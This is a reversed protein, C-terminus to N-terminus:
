GMHCGHDQWQHGHPSSDFLTDGLGTDFHYLALTHEDPEFRRPPTFDKTYRVTNSIRVEDIIGNFGLVPGKADSPPAAIDFGTPYFRLKGILEENDAVKHSEPNGAFCMYLPILSAAGNVYLTVTHHDFVAALHTTNGKTITSASPRFYLGSPHESSRTDDM